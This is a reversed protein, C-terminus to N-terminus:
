RPYAPGVTGSPITSSATMAQSGATEAQPLFAWLGHGAHTTLVLAYLGVDILLALFLRMAVPVAHRRLWMVIVAEGARPRDHLFHVETKDKRM